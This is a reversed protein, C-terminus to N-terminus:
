TGHEAMIPFAWGWTALFTGSLVIWAWWRRPWQLLVFPLPMIAFIFSTFLVPASPSGLFNAADGLTTIDYVIAAVLGIITWGYTFGLSIPIAAIGVPTGEGLMREVFNPGTSKVLLYIFVTTWIIATAYGAIWGAIVASM